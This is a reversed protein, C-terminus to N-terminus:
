GRITLNLPAEPNQHIVYCIFDEDEYYVNTETPYIRAFEQYWYYAKSCLVTRIQHNFYTDFYSWKLEDYNLGEYEAAQESISGKVVDPYYRDESVDRCEASKRGLWAPGTLYQMTGPMIPHKEVYLFVYEKPVSYPWGEEVAALVDLLQVCNEDREVQPWEDGMSIIAYSDPEFRRTIEATVHVVSEHRKVMWFLYEHFDVFYSFCYVGVCILAAARCVAKHRHRSFLLFLPIDALVWPVAYVWARLVAFLREVSVLEPLGIFPAAYLLILLLSSLAILLYGSVTEWTLAAARRRKRRSSNFYIWAAGLSLPILLILALVVPGAGGFITEFGKGFFDRLAGNDTSVALEQKTIYRGAAGANATYTRVGWGLSGELRRGLIFATLMPLAGAMAGDWVACFLAPFRRSAFKRFHLLAALLCPFFALIAVYFHSAVAGGVGMSLLLLYEDRFWHKADGDWERERFFRILLLPCLFVLHLGFEQPLTWALRSMSELAMDHAKGAVCGDFTLFLTMVFLPTYRCLFLEKLLCYLALLFASAHIGGLFLVCSYIKVGFLVSMGYIFCHMAYPYVGNYFIRGEGRMEFLWQTHTYADYCGYTPNRLAPFSFFLVGFLLLVALILYEARHDRYTEWFLGWKERAIDGLRALQMKWGRRWFSRRPRSKGLAAEERRRRLLPLGVSILLAGYFLARVLWVNLIHLLGLGLIVGNYLVMPVAACFLFRFTMGKGRLFGRFMVSPWIYFLAAYAALVRGYEIYWYLDSM